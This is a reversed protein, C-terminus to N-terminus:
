VAVRQATLAPRPGRRVLRSKNTEQLGILKEYYKRPDGGCEEEITRRVRRVEEVIEDREMVIWAEMLEEPTCIVPTRVGNSANIEEIWRKVRGSVIHTCNWSLLYEM